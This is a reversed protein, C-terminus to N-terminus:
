SGGLTHPAMCKANNSPGTLLTETDPPPVPQRAARPAVMVGLAGGPAALLSVALFRARNLNIAPHPLVQQHHVRGEPLQHSAVWAYSLFPELRTSVDFRQLRWWTPPPTRLVGGGLPADSDSLNDRKELVM